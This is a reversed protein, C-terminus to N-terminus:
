RSPSKFAPTGEVLSDSTSAVPFRVAFEQFRSGRAGDTLSLEPEAAGRRNVQVSIWGFSEHM